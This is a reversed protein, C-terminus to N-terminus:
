SLLESWHEYKMMQGALYKTNVVQIVLLYEIYGLVPFNCCTPSGNVVIEIQSQVSFFYLEVKCLSLVKKTWQHNSSIFMFYWASCIIFFSYWLLLLTTFENNSIFYFCASVTQCNWTFFQGQWTVVTSICISSILSWHVM